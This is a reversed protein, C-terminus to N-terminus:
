IFGNTLDQQIWSCEEDAPKAKFGCQENIVCFYEASELRKVHVIYRKLRATTLVTVSKTSTFKKAKWM